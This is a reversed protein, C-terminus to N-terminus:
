HFMVGLCSAVRDSVVCYRSELRAFIACTDPDTTHTVRSKAFHAEYRVRKTSNRLNALAFGHFDLGNSRPPKGSVYYEPDGKQGEFNVRGSGRVRCNGSTSTCVFVQRANSSKRWAGPSTVLESVRGRFWVVWLAEGARRSPMSRPNWRRPDAGAAAAPAAFLQLDLRRRCGDAGPRVM